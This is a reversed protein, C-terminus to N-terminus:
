GISRTEVFNWFMAYSEDKKLKLDYNIFTKLEFLNNTLVDRLARDTEEDIEKDSLTSFFKRKDFDALVRFKKRLEKTELSRGGILRDVWKQVDEEPVNLLSNVEDTLGYCVNQFDEQKRKILKQKTLHKL